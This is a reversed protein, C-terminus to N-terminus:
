PVMRRLGDRFARFSRSRNREPDMFASVNRAVEIKPLGAEYYGARQLVRELAEWTGGVISDPDRYRAQSALSAPVRPYVRTLAEIDGLFWAELEEIAIRNLVQYQRQPTVSAPTTLGCAAAIDDLRAKLEQCADNDRDVVVVIRYDSTIWSSYGRLREPLKALLDPKGQHPHVLFTHNEGLIRPVLNKLVEKVSLEEVLFELHM